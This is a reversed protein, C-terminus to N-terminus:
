VLLWFPMYVRERFAFSLGYDQKRINLIELLVISLLGGSYFSLKM